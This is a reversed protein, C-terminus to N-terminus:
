VEKRYGTYPRAQIIYLNNDEYAWEIDAAAFDLHSEIELAMKSIEFIEENTIKKANRLYFPMEQENLVNNDNIKFINGLYCDQYGINYSEFKLTKRDVLCTDPTVKGSVLMEGLGLIGEVVIKGPTSNSNTFCVGSIRSSVQKQVIIRMKIKENDIQKLECYKKVRENNVSNLVNIIADIIGSLPINLQTNFMGAFSADESDECTASSRIAFLSAGLKQAEQIIKNQNGEKNIDNDDDFMISFFQPVPFFNSMRFLQYGKGGMDSYNITSNIKM